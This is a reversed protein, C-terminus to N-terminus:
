LLDQVKNVLNIQCRAFQYWKECPDLENREACARIASEIKKKILMPYPKSIRSILKQNMIVAADVYNLMRSMCLFRCKSVEDRDRLWDTATTYNFKQSSQKSLDLDFWKVHCNDDDEDGCPFLNHCYMRKVNQFCTVFNYAKECEDSTAENQITACIQALTLIEQRQYKFEAISLLHQRLEGIDITGNDHIFPPEVAEKLICFLMCKQSNNQIERLDENKLFNSLNGPDVSRAELCAVIRSENAYSMGFFAFFIIILLSM